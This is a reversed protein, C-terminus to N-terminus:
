EKLIRLAVQKDKKQMNLDNLRNTLTVEKLIEQRYLSILDQVLAHINHDYDNLFRM